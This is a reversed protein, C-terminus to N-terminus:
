KEIAMRYLGKISRIWRAYKIFQSTKNALLLRIGIWDHLSFDRHSLGMASDRLLSSSVAFDLYALLDNQSLQAVSVDLAYQLVELCNNVHFYPFTAIGWRGSYCALQERVFAIDMLRSKSISSGGGLPNRRYNYLLKDIFTVRTASDFIPLQQLLDEGYRVNHHTLTKASSVFLERRIAKGWLANLEFTNVLLHRALCLPDSSPLQGSSGGVGAHFSWKSSTAKFIAVDVNGKLLFHYIQGLADVCLSDDADVFILYEGKAHFAGSMRAAMPGQNDQSIITFSGASIGGYKKAIDLSADTSGDDVLVVEYCSFTQCLVSEITEALYKEADYFPIIISFIPPCLDSGM